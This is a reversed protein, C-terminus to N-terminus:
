LVRENSYKKIDELYKGYFVHFDNSYETWICSFTKDDDHFITYNPIMEDWYGLVGDDNFCTRFEKHLM